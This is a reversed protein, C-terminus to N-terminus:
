AEEALARRCSLQAGRLRLPAHFFAEGGPGVGPPFIRSRGRPGCRGLLGLRHFIVGVSAKEVADLLLADCFLGGSAPTSAERNTLQSTAWNTM